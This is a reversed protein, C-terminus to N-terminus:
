LFNFMDTIFVTSLSLEKDDTFLVASSTSLFILRLLTHQLGPPHLFRGLHCSEWGIRHISFLVSDGSQTSQVESIGTLLTQPYRNPLDSLYPHQYM